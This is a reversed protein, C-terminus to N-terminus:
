RSGDEGGAPLTFWFRSGQGNPNDEVGVAGGHREVIKKVLALGIGTGPYEDRSHLRKFMEFIRERHREPVGIGNDTVTLRWAAGDCEAAIDVRPVTGPTAFKIANSVLNQLASRLETPSGHVTPLTGITLIAGSETITAQMDAVVAKAVENLDVESFEANMRGVRSFALMDNILTQMRQCGDVAFEIYSDADADLQGSYRRALLSVPGSIARLPEALDHSAAYAFQELETNSRDLDQNRRDLQSRQRLLDAEARTRRAVEDRLEAAHRVAARRQDAARQALWTTLALSVGSIMSVVLAARGADVAAIEHGSTRAHVLSQWVVGCVAVTAVGIGVALAEAAHQLRTTSASLCLLGAAVICMAAATTVAMATVGGWATAQTSGLMYGITCTLAVVAVVGVALLLPATRWRASHPRWVLLAVGIAVFCAATNAAMRGPAGSTALYDEALLQDIHLNTQTGHEVLVAAALAVTFGGAWRLPMMTGRSATVALAAGILLFALATDIKMSQGANITLLGSWRAWWAVMDVAGMAAVVVGAWFATKRFSEANAAQSDPPVEAEPPSTDPSALDVAPTLQSEANRPETLTM